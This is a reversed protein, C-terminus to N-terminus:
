LKTIFLTIFNYTIFNRIFLIINIQIFRLNEINNLKGIVDAFIKKSLIDKIIFFLISYLWLSSYSLDPQRPM